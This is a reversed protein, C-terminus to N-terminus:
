CAKLDPAPKCLLVDELLLFEIDTRLFCDIADAPSMVIPEGNVNFSTNLLMPVGTREAFRHVLNRFGPPGEEGLTQFRCSGDVHTVAPVLAQKERLLPMVVNMYESEFDHGTFEHVRDRLITAAFPRFPERLKVKANVRDKMDARRPDAVISRGGLARPGFELAGMFIGGVRGECLLEVTKGVPDDVQEPRLCRQRVASEIQDRDFRPGLQAQRNADVHLAVMDYPFTSLAAGVAAGQDGPAAPVFFNPFQSERIIRGNCVSNMACGGSLVLPLSPHRRALDSLLSLVITEYRVQMARAVDAHRQSLPEDKRRPPGLAADVAADLWPHDVDENYQFRTYRLNVRFHGSRLQLLDAFFSDLATDTHGYPALGMVRYEDAAPQFGLHQTVAGYVFGLSAPMAIRAVTCTRDRDFVYATLSAYEGRGDIVVALAREFGSARHAYLAHSLHHDVFTLPPLAAGRWAHRLAEKVLPETRAARWRRAIRALTPRRADMLGRIESLAAPVLARRDNWYFAIRDIHAPTLGCAAFAADIAGNPFGWHNKRRTVREEELAFLLKGNQVVAVAADHALGAIGLTIM